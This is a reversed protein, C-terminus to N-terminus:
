RRMKEMTMVIIMLRYSPRVIVQALCFLFDISLLLCVARGLESTHVNLVIFIRYTLCEFGTAYINVLNLSKREVFAMYAVKAANQEALKHSKGGKGRFIEGEVEVTSFFTLKHPPGCKETKYEPLTFGESQALEQLLNKYLRADIQVFLFCAM